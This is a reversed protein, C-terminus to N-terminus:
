NYIVREVAPTSNTKVLNLYQGSYLNDFKRYSINGIIVNEVILSNFKVGNITESLENEIKEKDGEKLIPFLYFIGDPTEMDSIYAFRNVIEDPENIIYKRHNHKTEVFKEKNIIDAIIIGDYRKNILTLTLTPRIIVNKGDENTLDKYARKASGTPLNYKKDISSFSKRSDENLERLLVYERYMLSSLNPHEGKKKRQWVREKLIDFFEKRLPIFGYSGAIPTIYWEAEIDNLIESNRINDLVEAVVNNNEAVCFIVLDYIGKTALALQIRPNKELVEKVKNLNPKESILKAFIIYESFGLNNINLELTYKIGLIRELREIRYELAHISIGTIESIRNLTLRSNMSMVKLLNIDGKSTTNNSINKAKLRENRVKIEKSDFSPNKSDALMVIGNATIWGIYAESSKDNDDIYFIYFKNDVIKIELGQGYISKLEDFAEQVKKPTDVM